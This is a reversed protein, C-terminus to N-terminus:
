AMVQMAFAVPVRAMAVVPVYAQAILITSESIQKNESGDQRKDLKGTGSSQRFALVVTRETLIEQYESRGTTHPGTLDGRQVAIRDARVDADAQRM